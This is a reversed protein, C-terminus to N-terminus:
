IRKKKKRKKSIKEASFGILHISIKQSFYIAGTFKVHDRRFKRAVVDNAETKHILMSCGFMNTPKVSWVCVFWWDGFVVLLWFSDFCFLFLFWDFSIWWLRFCVVDKSFIDRPQSLATQRRYNATLCYSHSIQIGTANSSQVNKQQKQFTEFWKPMGLM